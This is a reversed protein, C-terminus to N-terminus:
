ALELVDSLHPDLPLPVSKDKDPWLAEGKRTSGSGTVKPDKFGLERFQGEVTANGAWTEFGTLTVTAKYRKNQRLVFQASEQRSPSRDARRRAWSRNFYWRFM